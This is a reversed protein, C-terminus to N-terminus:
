NTGWTGSSPFNNAREHNELLVNVLSGSDQWGTLQLGFMAMVPLAGNARDPAHCPEPNNM